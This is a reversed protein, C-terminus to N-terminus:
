YVLEIDDVGLRSQSSGTFYDGFISSALSVIIHTPKRNKYRYELPIEIQIWGDTTETRAYSGYAIVSSSEPDFFTKKDTTNVQVPCEPTGGFKRYDWNGLAVWVSCQDPDGKSVPNTEPYDDVVDVPGGTYKIWLRMARPRLNWPRGFNIIGGSTGVMGAFEGSFTNGAAFKVIINRSVLLASADGEVYDETDPIAICYSSGLTTSGINGSDWWKSILSADASAPDYWSSFVGSEANSFTNFGANPLQLAEETTFGKIDSIDEGCRARCEYDTLPSLSDILATYTGGETSIAPIEMWLSDGVPRYQVSVESGEAASVSAWACGTWADVQDLRISFDSQELYIMWTESTGRYSVTVEVGESFDTLESPDPNYSTVADPGLKLETVFIDSLDSSGSVYAIVRHNVDDIVSQGIQGKVNFSREIIQSARITWGYDQWTSLTIKLPSSLNHTGIIEPKSETKAYTYSVGTIKVSAIDVSEDLVIDVIHAESDITVETAGEIELSEFAGEIVPLPLDNSICSCLLIYFSLYACIRKM